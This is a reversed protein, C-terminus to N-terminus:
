GGIQRHYQHICRAAHLDLSTTVAENDGQQADTVNDHSDVLHIQHFVILDDILINGCFTAVEHTRKTNLIHAHHRNRCQHTVVYDLRRCIHRPIFPLWQQLNKVGDIDAIITSFVHSEGHLEDVPRVCVETAISACQHRSM